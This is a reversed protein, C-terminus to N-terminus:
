VFANPLIAYMTLHVAWRMRSKPDMGDGNLANRTFRPRSDSCRRMRRWASDAIFIALHSLRWFFTEHTSNAPSGSEFYLLSTLFCNSPGDGQPTIVNPMLPPRSADMLNM